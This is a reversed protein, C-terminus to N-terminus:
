LNLLTIKKLAPIKPQPQPHGAPQRGRIHEAIYEADKGVGGILASTIARQFPLGMFYLGPQSRVIGRDHIPYGHDDFVTLDVWSYDTVYGTCWVVNSVELVRGDELEPLGDKAGTTRAVWEIGAKQLDKRTVRGRPIGRPPYLFHDRLKRGIPNAVNFVRSAIFWIISAPLPPEQGPDPGSLWVRHKKALELAIEAGSSGAGVVLV